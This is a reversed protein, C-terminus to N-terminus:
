LGALSVAPLRYRTELGPQAHAGDNLMWAWDVREYLFRALRRIETENSDPRDFFEAATLAGAIFLATDISSLECQWQRRGSGMHLFHYYFGQYGTADTSPGQESDAFFRLTTLTREVADDRAIFKRHVGVPYCTLAMGVAAISAPWDIATKDLM